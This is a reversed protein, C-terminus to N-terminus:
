LRNEVPNSQCKLRCFAPVKRVGGQRLCRNQMNKSVDLRLLTVHCMAMTKDQSKRVIIFMGLLNMLLKYAKSKLVVWNPPKGM